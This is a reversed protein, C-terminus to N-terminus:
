DILFQIASSLNMLLFLEKANSPPTITISTINNETIVNPKQAMRTNSFGILFDHNDANKLQITVKGNTDKKLIATKPNILEIDSALFNHLFVPQNYFEEKTIRGVRLVWISKEPFHTKFYRHKPIDFYYSKFSKQWTGNMVHGAGWTADLYLWKGNLKVSNWAHNTSNRPKGIDQYNFRAYGTIEECEIELYDCIRKFTKAYAGCIGKRTQLTKAILKDDIAKLKQEKEEETRYSFSNTRNAGYYFEELDYRINNALWCYVAMVKEKDTFFDKNIKKAVDEPTYFNRYKDTKEKIQFIDQSYINATFLFLIFIIFRM